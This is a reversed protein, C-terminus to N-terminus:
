RPESGSTVPARPSRLRLPRFDRRSLGHRKMLTRVHKTTIGAHLAVKKISGQCRRLLSLLYLSEFMGLARRRAARCPLGMVEPPLRGSGSHVGLVLHAAEIMEGPCEVIAREIVNELERVNGPWDRAVLLDLAEHSVRSVGPRKLLLRKQDIFYSVLLPIDERRERLPPLHIEVVTLRHLLDERFAGARVRSALDANSATILRFDSRLLSSGGVRRFEREQLVRLLKAQAELALNAIEDLFLTAGDALEFVGVRRRDAGTFAGREHGFFESELLTPAVANCDVAVFERSARHSLKHVLRAVLEKGTGTEGTILVSVDATAVQQIQRFVRQLAPSRSILRREGEVEVHVTERGASPM